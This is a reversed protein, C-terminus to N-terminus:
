NNLRVKRSVLTELSPESAFLFASILAFIVPIVVASLLANGDGIRHLTNECQQVCACIPCDEGTCDHGAEAAIFFASLLMVLLLLLGLTGAATRKHHSAGSLLM